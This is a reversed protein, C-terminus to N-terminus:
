LFHCTKKKDFSPGSSPCGAQKWESNSSISDSKLQTLSESWFDKGRKGRPYKRPLVSDAIAVIDILNQFYHELVSHHHFNSCHKNGHLAISLIHVADLLESM